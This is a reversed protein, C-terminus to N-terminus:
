RSSAVSSSAIVRTRTVLLMRRSMWPDLPDRRRLGKSFTSAARLTGPILSWILASTALSVRGLYPPPPNKKKPARVGGGEGGWVM